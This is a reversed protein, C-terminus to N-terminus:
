GVSSACDTPRGLLWPIVVCRVTLIPAVTPIPELGLPRSLVGALEVLACTPGPLNPAALGGVIRVVVPHGAM